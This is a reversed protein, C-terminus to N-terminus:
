LGAVLDCLHARWAPTMLLASRGISWVLHTSTRLSPSILLMRRRACRATDQAAGASLSCSVPLRLSGSRWSPQARCAACNASDACRVQLQKAKSLGMRGRWLPRLPASGVGGHGGVDAAMLADLFAEACDATVGGYWDGDCPSAPGYVLVNGAYQLVFM